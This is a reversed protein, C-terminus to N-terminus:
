RGWVADFEIGADRNLKWTGSVAIRHLIELRFAESVDEIRTPRRILRLEPSIESSSFDDTSAELIGWAAPVEDPKLIGPRIVLYCADACRYRILRDFKTRGFVAKELMAIESVVKQYGRHEIQSVDATQFEPFLSDGARLNPYHSGILDELKRRRAQLDALRKRSETEPKSDNLFDPRAQKCEFVATRTIAIERKGPREIKAAAVDARFNSNPVRIEMGAARYGNKQAWLLAASKLLRHARSEGGRRAKTEHKPSSSPM